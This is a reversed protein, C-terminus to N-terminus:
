MWRNVTDIVDQTIRVAFNTNLDQVGAVHIGVIRPVTPNVLNKFLATVASGSQGSYTSIQYFLFHQDIEKPLNGEAHWMTRPLKDGPYGAIDVSKEKLSNDDAAYMAPYTIGAPSLGKELKVLGYDSLYKTYDKVNGSNDPSPPSLTKYDEPVQQAKVGVVGYPNNAGNRALAFTVKKAYGGFQKQYLNHACTLVYYEDILIGTGTGQTGNPFQIELQGTWYFPPVNTPNVQVRNSTPFVIQTGHQENSLTM